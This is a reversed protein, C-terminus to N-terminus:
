AGYVSGQDAMLAYISLDKLYPYVLKVVLALSLGNQPIFREHSQNIGCKGKTLSITCSTFIVRSQLGILVLKRRPLHVFVRLKHDRLDSKKYTEIREPLGNYIAHPDRRTRVQDPGLSFRVSM